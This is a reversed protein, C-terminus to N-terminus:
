FGLDPPAGGEQEQEERSIGRQAMLKLMAIHMPDDKQRQRDNEDIWRSLFRNLGTVAYKIPALMSIFFDIVAKIADKSEAFLRMVTTALPLFERQLETAIDSFMAEMEARSEVYDAVTSGMEESRRIMAEMKMMNARAEAAQLTGSFPRIDDAISMM